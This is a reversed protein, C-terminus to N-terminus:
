PRYSQLSYGTDLEIMDIDIIDTPDDAAEIAERQRRFEDAAASRGIHQSSRTAGDRLTVKVQIIRPPQTTAYRRLEALNIRRESGDEAFNVQLATHGNVRQLDRLADQVPTDGVWYNAGSVLWVSMIRRLLAEQLPLNCVATTM